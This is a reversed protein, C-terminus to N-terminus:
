YHAEQAGNEKMPLHTHEEETTRCLVAGTVSALPSPDPTETGAGAPPVQPCTTAAGWGHQATTSKM